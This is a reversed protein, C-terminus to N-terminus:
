HDSYAVDDNLLKDILQERKNSSPDLEFEQLQEPSPLLGNADLSARRLFAADSIPQPPATKQKLLAADLLRDIPHARGQQAAPLEVNRPRLPPEWASKGLTVGEEWPLGADIWKTLAAIEKDTLRPGEPPMWVDEDDSTIRELLPSKGAEGAVVAKGNEGGALLESRTNMSLGGEKRAGNHCEACHKRLVPLVEHAFDVALLSAPQTVILLLWAAILRRPHHTVFVPLYDRGFAAPTALNCIRKLFIFMSVFVLLRM